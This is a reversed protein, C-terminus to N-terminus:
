PSSERMHKYGDAPGFDAMNTAASAWPNWVVVDGLNSREVVFLTRGGQEVAVPGAVNAYARDVEGAIAVQGSAETAQAGGQTKDKYTAGQLGAVTVATVDPVRLYTHFLANFDFPEGGENRVLLKTELSAKSLVVSYILGFDFPWQKRSDVSLNEPGLGFEVHVSTESEEVRGLVEWKSVRAFGHQPLSATPGETTKGFVQLFLYAPQHGM